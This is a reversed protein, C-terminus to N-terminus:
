FTINFTLEQNGRKITVTTADGKKYKSLVNMYSYIDSFSNEGLKIIV